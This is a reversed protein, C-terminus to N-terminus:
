RRNKPLFKELNPPTKMKPLDEPRDPYFFEKHRLWRGQFEDWFMMADVQREFECECWRGDCDIREGTPDFPVGNYICLVEILDWNERVYRYRLAVHYDL